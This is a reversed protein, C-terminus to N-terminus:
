WCWGEFGYMALWGVLGYHCGVGLELAGAGGFGVVWVVGLGRVVGGRPDAEGDGDDDDEDDGVDGEVEEADVAGAAM